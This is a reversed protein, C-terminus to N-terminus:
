KDPLQRAFVNLLIAVPIIAVALPVILFVPAWISTPQPAMDQSLLGFLILLLGVGFFLKGGFANLAYWNNPSVFAKRMRIGYAPNMPVKKLILPLSFIACAVGVGVHVYPIPVIMPNM